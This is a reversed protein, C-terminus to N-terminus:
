FDFVAVAGEPGEAAWAARDRAQFSVSRLARRLGDVGSRLCANRDAPDLL